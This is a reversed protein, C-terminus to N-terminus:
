KSLIRIEVRRNLRQDEESKEPNVLPNLNGLGVYKLRNKDIGKSALYDYVAKARSRSVTTLGDHSMIQTDLGTNLPYMCCIHGEIQITVGKNEQLFNLLKELEPFSEPLMKDSNPEFLLNKLAVTENVKAKTIDAVNKHKIITDSQKPKKDPVQTDINRDIIIQVKRDAAFGDKGNVPTRNIKGKGICLKIDKKDFGSRILYDQVNKARTESLANNYANDGTYDAYGLVILKQGHILVDKFILKDIYDGAEKSIKPDNLLFYVQFTDSQQGTASNIRLLFLLAILLNKM